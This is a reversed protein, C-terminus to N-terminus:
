QLSTITGTQRLFSSRHSVYHGEGASLALLAVVGGGLVLLGLGFLKLEALIATEAALV